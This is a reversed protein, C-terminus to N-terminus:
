SPKQFPMLTTEPGQRGARARTDSVFANETREGQSRNAAITRRLLTSKGSRQRLSKVGLLRSKATALHSLDVRIEDAGMERPHRKDHFRIFDIIYRLYSIETRRSMHELRM